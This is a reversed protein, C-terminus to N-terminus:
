TQDEELLFEHLIDQYKEEVYKQIAIPKIWDKPPIKMSQIQTDIVDIAQIVSCWRSMEYVSMDYKKDTKSPGYTKTISKGKSDLETIDTKNNQTNM